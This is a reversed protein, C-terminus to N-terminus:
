MQFLSLLFLISCGFIAIFIIALIMPNVSSYLYTRLTKKYNNNIYEEITKQLTKKTQEGNGTFRFSFNKMYQSYYVVQYLKNLDVPAHHISFSASGSKINIYLGQIASYPGYKNYSICTDIVLELSDIDKFCFEKNITSNLYSLKIKNDTFDIFKIFSESGYAIIDDSIRAKLEYLLLGLWFFPFFLLLLFVLKMGIDAECFASYMWSFSEGLTMGSNLAIFLISLDIVTFVFFFAFLSVITANCAKSTLNKIRM